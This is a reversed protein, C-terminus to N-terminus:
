PLEVAHAESCSDVVQPFTIRDDGPHDLKRRSFPDGAVPHNVQVRDHEVPVIYIVYGPYGLERWKDHVDRVLDLIMLDSDVLQGSFKDLLIKM